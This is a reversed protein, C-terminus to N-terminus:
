TRRIKAAAGHGILLYVLAPLAYNLALRAYGNGVTFLKESWGALWYAMDRIYRVFLNAEDAELLYFVIWLGM